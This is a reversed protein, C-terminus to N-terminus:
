LLVKEKLYRIMWGYKKRISFDLDPRSEYEKNKENLKSIINKHKISQVASIKRKELVEIFDIAPIDDCMKCIIDKKVHGLITDSMIIRPYEAIKEQLLYATVYAPGMIQTGAEEICVDGFAIAGRLLIPQDECLCFHQLYSLLAILDNKKEIETAFILCDSVALMTVSPEIRLEKMMKRTFGRIKRIEKVVEETSERNKVRSTVGLVDIFAVVKKDCGTVGEKDTDEKKASRIFDVENFTSM